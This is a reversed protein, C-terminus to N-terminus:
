RQWNDDDNDNDKQNDDHDYAAGICPGDLANWHQYEQGGELVVKLSCARGPQDVLLDESDQIRDISSM